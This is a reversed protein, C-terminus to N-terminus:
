AIAIYNELFENHQARAQGTLRLSWVTKILSFNEKSLKACYQEGRVKLETILMRLETEATVYSTLPSYLNKTDSNIKRDRAKRELNERKRREKEEASLQSAPVRPTTQEVIDAALETFFPNELDANAPEFDRSDSLASLADKDQDPSSCCQEEATDNNRDTTVRKKMEGEKEGDEEEEQEQAAGPRHHSQTREERDDHNEKKDEVEKM